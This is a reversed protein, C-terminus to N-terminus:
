ARDLAFEVNTLAPLLLDLAGDRTKMREFKTRGVFVSEVTRPSRQWQQDFGHSRFAGVVLAKVARPPPEIGLNRQLQLQVIAAKLAAQARILWARTIEAM